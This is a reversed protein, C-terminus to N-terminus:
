KKKKKKKKQLLFVNLNAFPQNMNKLFTDKGEQADGGKGAVPGM